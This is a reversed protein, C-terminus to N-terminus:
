IRMLTGKFAGIKFVDAFPQMSGPGLHLQFTQKLIQSHPFDKCHLTQFICFSRHSFFCTKFSQRFLTLHTIILEFLIESFSIVM